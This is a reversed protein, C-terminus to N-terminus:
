NKIAGTWKIDRSSDGLYVTFTGHVQAWGHVTVDWISFTRANFPIRVQASGGAPLVM